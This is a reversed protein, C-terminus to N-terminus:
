EYIYYYGKEIAPQDSALVKEDNFLVWQGEKKVYAVYHGSHANRGLHVIAAKLQYKTQGSLHEQGGGQQEEEIQTQAAEQEANEHSFLYDV